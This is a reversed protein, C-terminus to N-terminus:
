RSAADRRWGPAGNSPPEFSSERDSSVPHASAKVDRNWSSVLIAISLGILLLAFVTAIRDRGAIIQLHSIKM